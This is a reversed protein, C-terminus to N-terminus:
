ELIKVRKQAEQNNPDLQLVRRYEVLAQDGQHNLLYAQALWLHAQADGSNLAVSRQLYSIAAPYEKKMLHYFGIYRRSAADTSDMKAVVLYENKAQEIDDMLAYSQALWLHPQLDEPKLDVGKRFAKVAEPYKKMRIFSFGMNLYAPVSQSDAQVKKQYHDVAEPYREQKYLLTGIEFHLDLTSDKEVAKELAIVALSDQKLVEYSRGWNAYEQASLTDIAALRGYADAAKTFNRTGYYLQTLLRTLEVNTSDVKAAAEGNEIADSFRNGLYYLNAIQYYSDRYKPDMQVIKKYEVLADNYQQSKYLLRALEYHIDIRTSDLEVAKRYNEIALSNVKQKSYAQGLAIYIKPDKQDAERAHMLDVIAANLSDAAIEAQGIGYYFRSKYGKKGVALGAQFVQEADTPMKKELYLNGLSLTYEPNKPDRQYAKALYVLASDSNGTNWLAMGLYYNAEKSDPSKALENRLLPIAEAYSKNKYAAIGKQLDKEQAMAPLSAALLLVSACLLLRKM